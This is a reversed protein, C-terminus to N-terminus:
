NKPKESHGIHKQTFELSSYESSGPSDFTTMEYWLRGSDVRYWQEVKFKGPVPLLMEGTMKLGFCKIKEVNQSPLIEVKYERSKSKYTWKEGITVDQRDLPFHLVDGIYNLPSEEFTYKSEEYQLKTGTGTLYFNWTDGKPDDIDPEDTGVQRTTKGGICEVEIHQVGKDDIGLVSQQCQKEHKIFIPGVKITEVETYFWQEDEKMPAGLHFTSQALAFTLSLIM